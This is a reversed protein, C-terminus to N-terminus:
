QSLGVPVDAHSQGDVDRPYWLRDVAVDADFCGAVPVRDGVDLYEPRRALLKWTRAAGVSLAM